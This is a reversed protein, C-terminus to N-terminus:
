ITIKRKKLWRQYEPSYEIEKGKPMGEYPGRSAGRYASNQARELVSKARNIIDVGERKKGKISMGKMMRLKDAM